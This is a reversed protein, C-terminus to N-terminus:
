TMRTICRMDSCCQWENAHEFGLLGCVAYRAHNDIVVGQLRDRIKAGTRFVHDDFMNWVSSGLQARTAERTCESRNTWLVLRHGEAKLQQLREVMATNIGIATCVMTERDIREVAEKHSVSARFQVYLEDLSNCLLTGDVDM